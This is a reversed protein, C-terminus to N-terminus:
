KLTALYSAICHSALYIIGAYNICLDEVEEKSLVDADVLRSKQFRPRLAFMFTFNLLILKAVTNKGYIQMARESLTVSM